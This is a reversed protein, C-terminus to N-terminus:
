EKIKAASGKEAAYLAFSKAAISNLILTINNSDNEDCIDSDLWKIVTGGVIVLEFIVVAFVLRLAWTVTNM